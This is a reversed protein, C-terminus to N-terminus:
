DLLEYYLGERLILQRCYTWDAYCTDPDTAPTIEPLVFGDKAAIMGYWRREQALNEEWTVNVFEQPPMSQNLAFVAKIATEYVAFALPEVTTRRGSTAHVVVSPERRIKTNWRKLIVELKKTLKM